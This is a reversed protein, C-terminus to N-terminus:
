ALDGYEIRTLADEILKAGRDTGLLDLPRRGGFDPHEQKLWGTGKDVDDFVRQAYRTVRALRYLRDSEEVTLEGDAKRRRATRGTVDILALVDDVTLDFVAAVRAVASLRFQLPADAVAPGKISTGALASWGGLFELIDVTSM